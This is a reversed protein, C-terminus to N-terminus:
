ERLKERNRFYVVFLIVWAVYLVVLLIAGIIMMNSSIGGDIHVAAYAIIGFISTTILILFNGFISLDSKVLDKM